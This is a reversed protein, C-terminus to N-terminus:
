KVHDWKDADDIRASLNDCLHLMWALKTKPMVPSGWERLGHHALIAHLVEDVGNPSPNEIGLWDITTQYAVFCLDSGVRSYNECAKQWILASRSIHHIMRKHETGQWPIEPNNSREYDWMKGADHFLAACFLKKEDLGADLTQNNALCLRVVEATHIVLGGDGYHHQTPKGSGSWIPFRKDNLVASCLYYIKYENALARLYELSNTVLAADM